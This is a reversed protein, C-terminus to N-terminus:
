VPKVRSLLTNRDCVLSPVAVPPLRDLQPASPGYRKASEMAEKGLDGALVVPGYLLAVTDPDDPLSEMHLNMPLRVEITDGSRWEREVVAYSGPGTTVPTRSRNVSLTMGRNAWYPHRIRIALRVPNECKLTLRTTEDEPFRTEQRVTLGKDKWTLESAIFLNVGLSQTDHCYITDAYKAHNEMGTGVCCWFSADPTSYTKFAGPRLPVYYCV